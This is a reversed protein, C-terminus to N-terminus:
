GGHDEDHKEHTSANPNHGLSDERPNASSFVAYGNNVPM